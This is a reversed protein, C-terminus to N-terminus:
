KDKKKREVLKNQFITFLSSTIWYIGIAGPLSFSAILIFVLMFYITYKMQAAQGTAGSQDKLTKRFSFYTTLMILVILLIYLYNHNTFIGVLPTTGMQISLFNEEFIAPTRNIAELFAFLLPLQVFSLLCGSVPNIHYKQYVQMLEQAQMTQAEQSDKGNYKKQIKEIEPQALKMNESQMATKKTIPMLILRIILCTLIISLGYSKVLGGIKLIVWALPKVFISTWLGEYNNLPSFKDCSPLKSIDVDNNEYLEITKEDTPKCIINETLSQGTTPNTVVNNDTDKLTKTCGTLMILCTSLVIIRKTQKKM